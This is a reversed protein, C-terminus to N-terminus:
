SFLVYVVWPHGGSGMCLAAVSFFRGLGRSLWCGLPDGSRSCSWVSVMFRIRDAASAAMWTGMGMGM